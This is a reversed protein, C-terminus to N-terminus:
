EKTLVKSLAVPTMWGATGGGVIVIQTIRNGVMVSDRGQEFASYGTTAVPSWEAAPHPGNASPRRSGRRAAYTNMTDARAM